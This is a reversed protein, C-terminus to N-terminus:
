TEAEQEGHAAAWWRAFVECLARALTNGGGFIPYDDDTPANNWWVRADNASLDIDMNYGDPWPLSLAADVSHLWDPLREAVNEYAGEITVGFGIMGEDSTYYGYGDIGSWVASKVEHGCARALTRLLRDDATPQTM